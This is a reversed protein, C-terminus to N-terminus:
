GAMVVKYMFLGIGRNAALELQIGHSDSVFLSMHPLAGLAYINTITHINTENQSACKENAKVLNM